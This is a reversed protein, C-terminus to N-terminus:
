WLEASSMREVKEYYFYKPIYINFDSPQKHFLFKLIQKFKYIFKILWLCYDTNVIMKLKCFNGNSM